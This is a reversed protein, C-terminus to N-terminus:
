LSVDKARQLNFQLLAHTPDSTVKSWTLCQARLFSRRQRLANIASSVAPDIDSSGLAGCSTAESTDSKPRMQKRQRRSLNAASTVAWEKAQSAVDPKCCPRASAGVDPRWRVATYVAQALSTGVAGASSAALAAVAAITADQHAQEDPAVPQSIHPPMM